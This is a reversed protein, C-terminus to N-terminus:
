VNKSLTQYHLSHEGYIEKVAERSFYKIRHGSIVQVVNVLCHPFQCLSPLIMNYKRVNMKKPLWQLNYLFDEGGMSSPIIHDVSYGIPCEDYFKQRMAQEPTIRKEIKKLYSFVPRPVVELKEMISKALDVDVKLKRMLYPVSLTGFELLANKAIQLNEESIDCVKEKLALNETM